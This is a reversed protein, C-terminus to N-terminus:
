TSKKLGILGTLLLLTGFGAFIITPNLSGAPALTSGAASAISEPLSGITLTFGASTSSDAVLIENDGSLVSASTYSWNGSADATVGNKIGNITIDVPSGATTIGSFTPQSVTVYFQTAGQIFTVGGVSSLLGSGAEIQSCTSITTAIFLLLATLFKFFLKM